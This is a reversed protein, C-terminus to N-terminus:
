GGQYIPVEQKYYKTHIATKNGVDDLRRQKRREARRAEDLEKKYTLLLSRQQSPPLHVLSTRDGARLRGFEAALAQERRDKRTVALAQSGADARDSPGAPQSSGPPLTSPGVPPKDRQRSRPSPGVHHSRHALLKKGSPLRLTHDDDPRARGETAQRALSDPDYFGRMEDTVNFRCHGMSTMHQRVAEATRCRKGCCICERYSFIVMHLFWIVTQLDVVLSSQLPVVLSHSQHMHSLNEDFDNSAHNCFLCQEPTFEVVDRDSSTDSESDEESGEHDTRPSSPSASKRRRDPRRSSSSTSPKPTDPPPITITGPEAVRCRIKYVHWDSKAHQRKEEPSSFKLDCLLCERLARSPAPTSDLISSEM